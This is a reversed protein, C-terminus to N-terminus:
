FISLPWLFPMLVPGAMSVITLHLSPSFNDELSTRALLLLLLYQLPYIPKKLLNRVKIILM